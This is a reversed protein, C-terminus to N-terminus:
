RALDRAIEGAWGARHLSTRPLLTGVERLVSARVQPAYAAVIDRRVQRFVPSGAVEDAAVDLLRDAWRQARV